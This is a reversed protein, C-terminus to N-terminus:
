QVLEAVVQLLAVVVEAGAGGVVAGTAEAALLPSMGFEASIGVTRREEGRTVCGAHTSPIAAEESPVAARM